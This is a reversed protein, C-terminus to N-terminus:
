RSNQATGRAAREECLPSIQSGGRFVVTLISFIVGLCLLSMQRETVNCVNKVFFLGLLTTKEKM